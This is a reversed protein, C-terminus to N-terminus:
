PHGSPSPVALHAAIEKLKKKLPMEENKFTVATNGFERHQQTLHKHIQTTDSGYILKHKNDKPQNLLHQRSELLKDTHLQFEERYLSSLIM